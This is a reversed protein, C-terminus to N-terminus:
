FRVRAGLGVQFGGAVVKQADPLNLSGRAYRVFLAGGYRPTFKYIGEFGVNVGAATGSEDKPTLTLNQTGNAVSGTAVLQQSVHIASPGVSFAVDIDNTVPAFWMASLHFAREKRELNPVTVNVALPQNFFLPSPISAAAQASGKSSFTTFEAGIVLRRWIQYGGAIGVVPGSGVRHNANVKATEDYLPFSTSTSVTRRNPQAGVNIGVFRIKKEPSTQAQLTSVGALTFVALLVSVTKSMKGMEGMKGMERM